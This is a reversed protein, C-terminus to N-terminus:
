QYKSILEKIKPIVKKAAKIGEEMLMKKQTFDFMSIGKTDPEILVDAYQLKIQNTQYMMINVSQAIVDILSNIDYNKIDKQLSVAIM